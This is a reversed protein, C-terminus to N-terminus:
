HKNPNSIIDKISKHYTDLDNKDLISVTIETQYDNSSVHLHHIENREAEILQKLAGTLQIAEDLTLLLDMNNFSQTDNIIFM